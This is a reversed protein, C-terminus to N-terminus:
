DHWWQLIDFEDEEEDNNAAVVPSNLYKSLEGGGQVV